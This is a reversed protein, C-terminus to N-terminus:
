KQWPPGGLPTPAILAAGLAAVPTSEPVLELRAGIDLHAIFPSQAASRDIARGIGEILAPGIRSMGGGIAVVEIDLTLVLVKIAGLIEDLWNEALAFGRPDGAEAAALLALASHGNLEPWSRALGSGSATAELCGLQGCPCTVSSLRAPLHGIEGATGTYGRWPRGDLVLGAALGTGLNLFALSGPTRRRADAAIVSYMGVAALTVDNDVAVPFGTRRALEGVLDLEDIGLNVAHRVFGTSHEVLGPIGVGVSVGDSLAADATEANAGALARLEEVALAATAIVAEAGFGSEYRAEALIDGADDIAVAATKTGGIDLGIRM